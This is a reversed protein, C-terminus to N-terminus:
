LVRRIRLYIAGAILLVVVVTFCRCFYDITRTRFVPPKVVTSLRSRLRYVEKDRIEVIRQLSDCTSEATLIGTAGITLGLRARGSQRRFDLPKPLNTLSDCKIQVGALRITDGAIHLTDVRLREVIVTSDRDTNTIVTAPRCRSLLLVLVVILLALLFTSLRRATHATM